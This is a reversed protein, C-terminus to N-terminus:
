FRYWHSWAGIEGCDAEGSQEQVRIGHSAEAGESRDYEEGTINMSEVYLIRVKYMVSVDGDCYYYFSSM